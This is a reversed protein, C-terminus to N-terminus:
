ERRKNICTQLEIDKDMDELDKEEFLGLMRTQMLHRVRPLAKTLIDSVNDDTPVYSYQVVGNKQEDHSHLYKVDIDEARKL